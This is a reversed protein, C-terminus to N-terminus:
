NNRPFYSIVNPLNDKTCWTNPRCVALFMGKCLTFVKYFNFLFSNLLYQLLGNTIILAPITLLWNM